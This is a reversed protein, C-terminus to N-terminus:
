VNTVEKAPCHLSIVGAQIMRVLPTALVACNMDMVVTSSVDHAM